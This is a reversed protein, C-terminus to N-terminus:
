PKADDHKKSSTILGRPQWRDRNRDISNGEGREELHRPSESREAMIGTIVVCVVRVAVDGRLWLCLRGHCFWRWRVSM